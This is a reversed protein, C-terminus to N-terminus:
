LINKAHSQSGGGRSNSNSGSCSDKLACIVIAAAISATIPDVSLFPAVPQPQPQITTLPDVPRKMNLEKFLTNEDTEQIIKITSTDLHIGIKKLTPEPEKELRLRFDENSQVLRSLEEAKQASIGELEAKVKEIDIETM